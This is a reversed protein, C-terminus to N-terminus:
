KKYSIAQEEKNLEEVKVEKNYKKQPNKKYIKFLIKQPWLEICYPFLKLKKLKLKLEM